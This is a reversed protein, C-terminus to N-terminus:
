ELVEYKRSERLADVINVQMGVQVPPGSARAKESALDSNKVATSLDRLAEAEAGPLKRRKLSRKARNLTLLRADLGAAEIAALKKAVTNVVRAAAKERALARLRVWGEVRCLREIVYRNTGEDRAVKRVSAGSIFAALAKPRASAVPQTSASTPGPAKPARRKKPQESTFEADVITDKAM